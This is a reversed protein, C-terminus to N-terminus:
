RHERRASGGPHRSPLSDKSSYSLRTKCVFACDFQIVSDNRNKGSQANVKTDSLAISILTAPRAWVVRVKAQDNSTVPRHRPWLRNYHLLHVPHCQCLFALLLQDVLVLSVLGIGSRRFYLNSDKRLVDNIQGVVQTRVLLIM